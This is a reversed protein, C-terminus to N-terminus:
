IKTYPLVCEPTRFYIGFKTLFIVRGFGSDYYQECRCKECKKHKLKGTGEQKKWSHRMIKKM